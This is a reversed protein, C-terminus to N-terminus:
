FSQGASVYGFVQDGNSFETGNADVISGSLDHEAILPRSALFNPIMKMMKYGSNILKM